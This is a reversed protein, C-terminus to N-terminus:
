RRPQGTTSGRSRPSGGGDRQDGCKVVNTTLRRVEETGFFFLFPDRKILCYGASQWEKIRGFGASNKSTKKFEVRDGIRLTAGFEDLRTEETPLANSPTVNPQTDDISLESRIQRIVRDEQIRLSELSRLLDEIRERKM